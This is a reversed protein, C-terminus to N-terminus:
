ESEKKVPGDGAPVRSAYSRENDTRLEGDSIGVSYYARLSYDDEESLEDSTDVEPSENVHQATYPVRIQEDELKLRALPILVLRDTAMGTSSEVTVWMPEGDQSYIEQVEGIKKGMQDFVTKGPLENVDEIPDASAM